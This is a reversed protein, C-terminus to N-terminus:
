CPISASRFRTLWELPAQSDSASVDSQLVSEVRERLESTDCATRPSDQVAPPASSAPPTPFPAEDYRPDSSKDM